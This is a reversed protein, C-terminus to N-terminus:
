SLATGIFSTLAYAAMVIILGIVASIILNKAKDIQQQNGAATMWTVGGYIMLIFFLVGIFSLIAGIISGIIEPPGENEFPINEEFANNATEDLGYNDASIKKAPIFFCCSLFAILFIVTGALINRNKDDKVGM